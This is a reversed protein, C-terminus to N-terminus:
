ADKKEEQHEIAEEIKHVEEALEEVDSARGEGMGRSLLGIVAGFLVKLSDFCYAAYQQYSESAVENIRSAWNFGIMGLISCGALILAWKMQWPM